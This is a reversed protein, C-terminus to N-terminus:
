LNAVLRFRVLELSLSLLWRRYCAGTPPFSPHRHRFRPSKLVTLTLCIM